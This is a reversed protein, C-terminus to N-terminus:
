MDYMDLYGTTMEMGAPLDFGYGTTQCEYACGHGERKSESVSESKSEGASGGENNKSGCGTLVFSMGLALLMACLLMRKKM